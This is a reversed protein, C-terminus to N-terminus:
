NILTVDCLFFFFFRGVKKPEPKEDKAAEKETKEKVDEEEAGASRERNAPDLAEQLFEETVVM